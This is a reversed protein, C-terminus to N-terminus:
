RWEGRLQERLNRAREARDKWMGFAGAMANEM